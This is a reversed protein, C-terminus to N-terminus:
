VTNKLISEPQVIIPQKPEKHNGYVKDNKQRQKQEQIEKQQQQKQQQLLTQQQEQEQKQRQEEEYRHLVAQAHHKWKNSVAYNLQLSIALGRLLLATRYVMSLENPFYVVKDMEHFKKHWSHQLHMPRLPGFMLRAFEALFKTSDNKTQIGLERFRKAIIEDNPHIHNDNLNHINNDNRNGDDDNAVSLILNAIRIQEEKNLKKCQGYDILGLMNRRYLHNQQEHHYHQRHNERSENRMITNNTNNNSIKNIHYDEKNEQKLHFEEEDQDIVLINGPHPDANFLGLEFIQHGHVDFLGDVWDSTLSLREAQNAATRHEEAWSEWDQPITVIGASSVAHIGRVTMSTSFLIIHRAFRFTIFIL